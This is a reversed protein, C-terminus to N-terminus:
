INKALTCENMSYNEFYFKSINLFTDTLRLHCLYSKNNREFIFYM